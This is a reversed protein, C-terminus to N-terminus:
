PLQAHRLRDWEIPEGAKVRAATEEDLEFLDERRGGIPPVSLEGADIADALEPRCIIPVGGRFERIVVIAPRDGYARLLVPIRPHSM